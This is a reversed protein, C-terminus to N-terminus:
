KLLIMKRASIFEGASLKYIYIGSPMSSADFKVEYTGQRQQKNVLTSVERGLIDYVKLTVNSLSFGSA